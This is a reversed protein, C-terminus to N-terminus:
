EVNLVHEQILDLVSLVGLIRVLSVNAKQLFQSALKVHPVNELDVALYVTKIAIKPSKVLMFKLFLSGKCDSEAKSGADSYKGSGCSTCKASDL